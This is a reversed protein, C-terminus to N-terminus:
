GEQYIKKQKKPEVGLKELAAEVMFDITDPGIDDIFATKAREGVVIVKAVMEAKERKKIKLM